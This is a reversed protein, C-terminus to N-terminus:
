NVIVLGPRLSPSSQDNHFVATHIMRSSLCPGDLKSEILISEDRAYATKDVGDMVVSGFDSNLDVM